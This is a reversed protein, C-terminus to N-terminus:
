HRLFLCSLNGEKYYRFVEFSTRLEVSVGKYANYLVIKQKEIEEVQIRIKEEQQNIMALQSDIMEVQAEINTRQAELTDRQVAVEEQQIAILQKQRNIEATKIGVEASKIDLERQRASLEREKITVERDLSDLLAKQKLIEEKQQEILLQQQQVVEMQRKLEENTLEYLKEWDERTKVAAGLVTSPLSIGVQNLKEENIEFRPQGNVVVFNFMSKGFEYGETILLTKQGAIKDLVRDLDFESGDSAFLVNTYEIKEVERFVVILLPKGQIEKRTRSLEFMEEYLDWSKSLVGVRFFAATDLEGGFNVYRGIDLIYLARSRNDFGEQSYVSSNIAFFLIVTTILIAQKKM